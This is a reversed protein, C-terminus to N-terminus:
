LAMTDEVYYSTVNLNERFAKVHFGHTWYNPSSGPFLLWGSDQSCYNQALRKTLVKFPFKARNKADYLTLAYKNKNKNKNLIETRRNLMNNYRHLAIKLKENLYLLCRKSSINLAQHRGLIESIINASRKNDKKKEM